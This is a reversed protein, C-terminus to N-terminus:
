SPVGLMMTIYHQPGRLGEQICIELCAFLGQRTGVADFIRIASGLRGKQLCVYGCAILKEQDVDEGLIRLAQKWKGEALLTYAKATDTESRTKCRSPKAFTM